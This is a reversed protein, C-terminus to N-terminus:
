EEPLILMPRPLGSWRVVQLSFLVTYAHIDGDPMARLNLTPTIAWGGTLRKRWPFFDYSAGALLYSGAGGRLSKAETDQDTLMVFGFGVGTHVSLNRWLSANGEIALGGAAGADNNKKAGSYDIVLGLGLRRTLLQGLRLSFGSGAYFGTYKGKEVLFAGGGTMGLGIWYGQRARPEELDQAQSGGARLLALALTCAAVLQPFRLLRM